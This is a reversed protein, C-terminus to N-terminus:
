DCDPNPAGGINGVACTVGDFRSGPKGPGTLDAVSGYKILMPAVYAVGSIPRCFTENEITM